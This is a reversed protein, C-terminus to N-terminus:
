VRELFALFLLQVGCKPLYLQLKYKDPNPLAAFYLYVYYLKNNQM